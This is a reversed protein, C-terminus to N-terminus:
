QLSSTFDEEDFWMQQHEDRAQVIEYKQRRIKRRSTLLYIFYFGVIGVGVFAVVYMMQNTAGQSILLLWYLTTAGILFWANLAIWPVAASVALIDSMECNQGHLLYYRDVWYMGLLAVLGVPLVLPISVSFQVCISFVLLISTMRSVVDVVPRSNAAVESDANLGEQHM